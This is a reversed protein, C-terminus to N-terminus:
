LIEELDFKINISALVVIPEGEQTGVQIYKYQSPIQQLKGEPAFDLMQNKYMYLLAAAHEPTSYVEVLEATDADELIHTALYIDNFNMGTLLKKLEAETFGQRVREKLVMRAEIDKKDSNYGRTRLSTTGIGRASMSHRQKEGPWTM